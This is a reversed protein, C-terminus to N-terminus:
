SSNLPMLKILKNLKEYYNFTCFSKMKFERLAGELRFMAESIYLKRIMCSLIGFSLFVSFFTEVHSHSINSYIKGGVELM